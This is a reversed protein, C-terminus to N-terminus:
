KRLCYWEIDRYFILADGTEQSKDGATIKSKYETVKAKIDDPGKFGLMVQACTKENWKGSSMASNSAFGM